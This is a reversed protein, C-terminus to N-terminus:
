KRCYTGILQAQALIHSRMAALVEQRDAGGEQELFTDLAYLTFFYRHTGSPPCPGGYKTQHWSNRGQRMGDPLNIESPFSELLSQKDSPINYLLWHTWDGAPADPDHIILTFSKTNAPPDEWQLTPSIDSGDCTFKSPISSGEQFDPSHIRFSM